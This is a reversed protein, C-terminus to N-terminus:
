QFLSLCQKLWSLLYIYLCHHFEMSCIFEATYFEISYEELILIKPLFVSSSLILSIKCSFPLLSLSDSISAFMINEYGVRSGIYECAIEYYLSLSPPLSLNRCFICWMAFSIPICHKFKVFFLFDHSQNVLLCINM